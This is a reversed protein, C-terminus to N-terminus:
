GLVEDLFSRLASNFADPKEINSLHGAGSITQFRAKPLAQAIRQMEAPTSLTDHSGVLVLTPCGIKGLAQTFDRRRAIARQAAAAGEVSTDGILREVERRLEPSASPSLLNPLLREILPETSGEEEVARASAERARKGDDTDAHARTDCLALAGVRQPAAAQLELAVYGGMSLGVVAAKDVGLADLLELALGAYGAISVPSSPPQSGGFGPLDPAILRFSGRLPAIQKKWMAGSLPFAHLLLVAPGTGSDAFHLKTGALKSQPM